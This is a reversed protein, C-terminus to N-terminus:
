SSKCKIPRNEAQLDHQIYYLNQTAEIVLKKKEFKCTVKDVVLNILILGGNESSSTCLKVGNQYVM